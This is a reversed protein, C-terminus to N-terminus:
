VGSMLGARQLATRLAQLSGPADSAIPHPLLSALSQQPMVGNGTTSAPGRAVPANHWLAEGDPRPSRGSKEVVSAARPAMAAQVQKGATASLVELLQRVASVVESGAAVDNTAAFPQVPRTELGLARYVNPLGAGVRNPDSNSIPTATQKIIEFLREVRGADRSQFAGQFDPHHALVLAAMGTVHPAAMSTGDWAGFGDDPLASIIAVGPACVDIESGFCSFKAPFYGDASEFGDMAQTAHFSAAPFEGWKGIASVALVHPTSAPFQVQGGSNGAAVICATGMQKARILREEVIQSPEGGGLSLNAVDIGSEICYDLAQVLSSFKGGPFIQIVHVEAAPAFGRVGASNAGIPGGAIIGACHSGHGITDNTWAKLDSSVVSHGPGIRHLNRHTPQAAGSDIIAVKVGAGNFSPPVQDLGMARQGWGLLQHGPFEHFFDTLSQVTVTSVGSPRIVPSTLWLGWYDIRPKVYVARITEPTDGRITLTVRGDGDTVGQTPWVSGFVYVEAGALPGSESRVELTTDFEEGLPVIIGPNALGPKPTELGFSLPSDREVVLRAGAQAQLQKAKDYHMRALLISSTQMGDVSQLGLLRPPEIQGLVEIDPSDKLQRAVFDASFTQLGPAQRPSIMFTPRRTEMDQPQEPDGPHMPAADRPPSSPAEERPASVTPGHSGAMGTPATGSLDPQVEAPDQPGVDPKKPQQAM